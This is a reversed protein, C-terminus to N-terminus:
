ESQRYNSIKLSDNLKNDWSSSKFNISFYMSHFNLVNFKSTYGADLWALVNGVDLKLNNDTKFSLTNNEHKICNTRNDFDIYIKPSVAEKINKPVKYHNLFNNERYLGKFYNEFIRVNFHANFACLSHKPEFELNKCSHCHFKPLIVIRNLIKGM